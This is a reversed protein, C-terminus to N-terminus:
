SNLAEFVAVAMLIPIGVKIILEMVASTIDTIIGINNPSHMSAVVSLGIVLILGSVMIEVAEDFAM